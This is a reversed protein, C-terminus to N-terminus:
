IDEDDPWQDLPKYAIQGDLDEDCFRLRAAISEADDLGYISLIDYRQGVYEYVLHASESYFQVKKGTYAAPQGQLKKLELAAQQKRLEDHNIAKYRHPLTRDFHRWGFLTKVSFRDRSMRFEVKKKLALRWILRLVLNIPWLITLVVYLVLGHDLRLIDTGIGNVLCAILPTTLLALGDAAQVLLPIQVRPTIRYYFTGDSLPVKRTKPFGDTPLIDMDM